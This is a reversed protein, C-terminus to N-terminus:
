SGGQIIKMLLMNKNHLISINQEQNGAEKLNVIIQNNKECLYKLYDIFVDSRDLLLLRGYEYEDESYEADAGPICKIINYYKSEEYVMEENIIKYGNNHLFKRLDSIHSQPQLILEKYKIESVKGASLIDIMLNGGMGSILVTEINYEPKVEKLGNSLIVSIKDQMDFMEVNQKARLLPGKNVDMAYVYRAINNKILYISTYAHDCGIDAVISNKSVNEAVCKLRESIRM